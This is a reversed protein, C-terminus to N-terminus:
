SSSPLLFIRPKRRKIRIKNANIETRRYFTKGLSSYQKQNETRFCSRHSMRRVKTIPISAVHTSKRLRSRHLSRDISRYFFYRRAHEGRCMLLINTSLARQSIYYRNLYYIKKTFCFLLHKLITKEYMFLFFLFICTHYKALNTPLYTPPQVARNM